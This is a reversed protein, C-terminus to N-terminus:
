VDLIQLFTESTMYITLKYHQGKKKTACEGSLMETLLRTYIKVENSLNSRWPLAISSVNGGKKKEGGEKRVKKNKGTFNLHM